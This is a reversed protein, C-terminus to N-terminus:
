LKAINIKGLKKIQKLSYLRRSGPGTRIPKILGAEELKRLEYRTLSFFELVHRLRM